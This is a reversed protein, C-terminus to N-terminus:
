SIRWLTWMLSVPEPETDQRQSQCHISGKELGEFTVGDQLKDGMLGSLTIQRPETSYEVDKGALNVTFTIDQKFDLAQMIHVDVQGKVNKAMATIDLEEESIVGIGDLEGEGPIESPTTFLPNDEGGNGDDKNDGDPEKPTTDDPEGTPNKSDPTTNGVEGAEGEAPVSTGPDTAFSQMCPALVLVAALMFSVIRKM